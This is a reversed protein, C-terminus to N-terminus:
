SKPKPFPICIKIIPLWFFVLNLLTLFINLVFFACITILPINFGCIWDLQVGGAGPPSGKGASLDSLKNGQMANMLAAPVAFFCNPKSNKRFSPDTPDPLPVPASTRGASEHWAAIRFPDSPRSWVLEPPCGPMDSKIRLFMRLRYLRSADQFRGTPATVQTSRAQLLAAIKGVIVDQNAANNPDASIPDWANPMTLATPPTGSNPDYYILAQAAQQYFTGMPLQPFSQTGVTCGYVNYNNLTAILDQAPTAILSQAPPTNDFAGFMIRLATSFTTFSTSGPQANAYDDSMWRYDVGQGAAPASNSGSKLLTPLATALATPDYTPPVPAITSIDSSATPIVAYVLTRGAAACVDPAAVFAPTYVEAQANALSQLALLQDLGPQGSYLRPRRTPDPDDCEHSPDLPWWQFDGQASRTWACPTGDTGVRRIVLGASDVRTPDLRPNGISNCALQLLAVPLVRHVPQYLTVSPVPATALNAVNVLQYLPVPPTVLKVVTSGAAPGGGSVATLFRAPFDEANMQLLIPPDPTVWSLPAPGPSGDPYLAPIGPPWAGDVAIDHTVM